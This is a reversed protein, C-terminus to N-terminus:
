FPTFDNGKLKTKLKLFSFDGALDPSNHLIPIPFSNIETIWKHSIPRWVILASCTHTHTRAHAHMSGPEKVSWMNPNIRNQFLSIFDERIIKSSQWLHCQQHYATNQGTWSLLNWLHASHHLYYHVTHSTHDLTLIENGYIGRVRSPYNWYSWILHCLWILEWWISNFHETEITHFYHM